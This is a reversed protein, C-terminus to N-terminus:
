YIPGGLKAKPYVELMSEWQVIFHTSIPYVLKGSLSKTKSNAFSEIYIIKSGFIKGIYCMPVATHSGTTVIYKPRIKIYFVLSKICNYSFKFVYSFMHHKTGSVLYKVKGKYASNLYLTSENKETIINYDYKEFLRKLQLLESLHGGSSSIFLVKKM